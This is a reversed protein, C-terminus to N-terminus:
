RAIRQLVPTWREVEARVFGSFQEPTSYETTLGMGFFARQLDPSALVKRLTENLRAIAAPPTAAPAVLGSWVHMRLEPFNLDVVSPLDLMPVYRNRGLVVLPRIRTDNRANEFFRAAGFVIEVEGRDLATVAAPWGATRVERIEMGEAKFMEGALVASTGPTTAYRLKGPADKIMKVLAGFDGAASNRGVGIMLPMASVLSVTAFSSLPEYNAARAMLPGTVLTADTAMLLTYGDAPSQAVARSGVAGGAGPQNEVIFAKGLAASLHPVIERAVIDAAGGAAFPVVIRVSREPWAQGFAAPALAALFLLALLRVV